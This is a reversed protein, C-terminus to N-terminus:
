RSAEPHEAEVHALLAALPAYQGDPLYEDPTITTAGCVPCRNVVTQM